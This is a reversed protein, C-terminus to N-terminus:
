SACPAPISTLDPPPTVPPAEDSPAFVAGNCGTFLVLLLPQTKM